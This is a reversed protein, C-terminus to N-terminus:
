ARRWWKVAEADSQAVGRGYFYMGGLNFEAKAYGQEAAKRYWKVAEADNQEVGDGDTYAVGLNNQAKADGGEAALRLAEFEEATLKSKADKQEAQEASHGASGFDKASCGLLAVCVALFVMFARIFRFM